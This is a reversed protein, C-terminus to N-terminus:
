RKLDLPQQLGCQAQVVAYILILPVQQLVHFFRAQARSMPLSPIISFDTAIYPHKHAGIDEPILPGLTCWNFAWHRWCEDM